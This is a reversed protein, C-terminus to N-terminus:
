RLLSLLFCLTETLQNVITHVRMRMCCDHSSSPSSRAKIEGDDLEELHWLCTSKSAKLDDQESDAKAAAVQQRDGGLEEWFRDENTGGERERVVVVEVEQGLQEIMHVRENKIGMCVELAKHREKTSCETGNWQFVVKGLDLIFADGSNLSTASCKVQQCRIEKLGKVHLLRKPLEDPVVQKFGSACGGELYELTGGMIDVFSKPEYGQNIRQQVPQGGLKDDLQVALLAATGQEDMSTESGLWFYLDYAFGGSKTQTTYLILYSDGTYFKGHFEKPVPAPYFNEVRWALVGIAEGVGQFPPDKPLEPQPQTAPQPPSEAESESDEDSSEGQRVEHESAQLATTLKPLTSSAAASAASATLAVPSTAAWDTEEASESEEDSSSEERDYETPQPASTSPARQENANAQEEQSCDEEEESSDQNSPTQAVVPLSAISAASEAVPVAAKPGGSRTKVAAAERKEAAAVAKADKKAAAAAAKAAKAEEAKAKKAAKEQEAKAKKAAKEEEVAQKKAELEEASKRKPGIPM